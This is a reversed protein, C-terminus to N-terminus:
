LSCLDCCRVIQIPAICPQIDSLLTGDILKSMWVEEWANGEAGSAGNRDLVSSGIWFVCLWWAPPGPPCPRPAPPRRRCWRWGCKARLKDHDNKSVGWFRQLELSTFEINSHAMSSNRAFNSVLLELQAKLCRVSRVMLSVVGSAHLAGFPGSPVPVGLLGAGCLLVVSRGSCGHPRVAGRRCVRAYM